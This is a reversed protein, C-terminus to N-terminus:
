KIRKLTYSLVIQHPHVAHTFFGCYSAVNANTAQGGLSGNREILLCHAGAKTAGIAAAFGAAGGGIVIVDYNFREIM